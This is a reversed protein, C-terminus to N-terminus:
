RHSSHEHRADCYCISSHLEARNDIPGRPISPLPVLAAGHHLWGTGNQYLSAWVFAPGGARRPPTPTEVWAGTPLGPVENAYTKAMHVDRRCRHRDFAAAAGNAFSHLPPVQPRRFPVPVCHRRQQRVFTHAARNASSRTPPVTPAHLYRRCRHGGSLYRSAIAARNASSRTPPGTPSHIYRRCRHGGSLYGSPSSGYRRCRRGGCLSSPL